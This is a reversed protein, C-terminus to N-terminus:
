NSTSIWHVEIDSTLVQLARIIRSELIHTQSILAAVKDRAVDHSRGRDTSMKRALFTPTCCFTRKRQSTSLMQGFTSVSSSSLLSSSVNGQRGM